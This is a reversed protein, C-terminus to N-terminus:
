DRVRSSRHQLGKESRPRGAFPLGDHSGADGERASAPLAPRDTPRSVMRGAPRNRLAPQLRLLITGQPLRLPAVSRRAHTGTKEPDISVIRQREDAWDWFWYGMAMPSQEQAWRAVRQDGVRFVGEKTGRTGRVNMESSGLVETISIFGDDPYRSIHMPVDDVFLELGANGSKGFGGSLEGYDTIGQAQLDLECVRDRVAPDLRERVGADSVAGWGTVTRGASLRVEEGTAARWVVPAQATGSDEAGLELPAKLEYTGGRLVVEVSQGAKIQQRALDRARQPTALPLAETGLAADNGGPSIWIQGATACVAQMALFFAWGRWAAATKM